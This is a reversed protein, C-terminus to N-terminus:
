SDKLSGKEKNLSGSVMNLRLMEGLTASGDLGDVLIVQSMWTIDVKGYKLVM